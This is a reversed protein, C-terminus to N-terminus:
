GLYNNEECAIKWTRVEFSRYGEKVFPDQEALITAENKDRANVVVLGSPHDSFPGCLVLHGKAELSRLHDIHRDITERALEKGEIKNLIIAFLIPNQSKVKIKM